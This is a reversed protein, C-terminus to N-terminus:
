AVKICRYAVQAISNCNYSANSCMFVLQNVLSLNKLLISSALKEKQSTIPKMIFNEYTFTYFRILHAEAKLEYDCHQSSNKITILLNVVLFKSAPFILDSKNVRCFIRQVFTKSHSFKWYLLNESYATLLLCGLVYLSFFRCHKPM